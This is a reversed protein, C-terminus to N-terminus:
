GVLQKWKAENIEVPYKQQLDKLWSKYAAEAKKRRLHEIIAANINKDKGDADASLSEKPYQETYYDSIDDPTISIREGMDRAIVKEMILRIRLRERWFPYSVAHELLMEDFVGEPYDRKYDLIAQELESDSVEIQLEQARKLIILEETIQNLLRLRAAKITQPERLASQPYASKMNEFMKQFDEVTVVQEEIRILYETPDDIDGQGCGILFSAILGIAAIFVRRCKEQYEPQRAHM